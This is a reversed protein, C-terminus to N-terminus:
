DAAVPLAEEAVRDRAIQRRYLAITPVLLLASGILAARISYASGAWGLAPGGTSQGISNVITRLWLMALALWIHGSLAFVVLGGVQLASCGALLRAPTGAGFSSPSHRKFWEMAALGLLMGVVGSVGFWVVPNESFFLPESDFRKIVLPVHLRDFVEAALGVFLSIAIIVKVVPRAMALRLGEGATSRMEGLVSRAVTREPRRYTEPMIILLVAALVFMGAGALVMPVQINILGLGVCALTGALWMQRGRLFVQGVKIEGIEDSIWAETAGSMFTYGAGRLIQSVLAEWFPPVGGELVYSCGLLASGILLALSRSYVDAVIGTPVEFVVVTSELVAGVMVM